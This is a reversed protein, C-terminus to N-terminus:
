DLRTWGTKLFFIIKKWDGERDVDCRKGAIVNIYVSLGNIVLSTSVKGFIYPITYVSLNNTILLTSVTSVKGRHIM